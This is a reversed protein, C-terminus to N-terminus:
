QIFSSVKKLLDLVKKLGNESYYVWIIAEFITGKKHNVTKQLGVESKPISSVKIEDLNLDDVLKALYSNKVLNKKEETIKGKRYLGKDWAIHVAVLGLVSDGFTGMGEALEGLRILNTLKEDNLIDPNDRMILYDKKIEDFVNKTDKNFLALVIKNPDDFKIKLSQEIERIKVTRLKQISDLIIDLQRDWNNLKKYARREKENPYDKKLHKILLAIQKIDEFLKAINFGFKWELPFILTQKTKKKRM